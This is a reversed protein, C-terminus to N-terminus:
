VGEDEELTEGPLGEPRKATKDPRSEEASGPGAPPRGDEPVAELDGEARRRRRLVWSATLFGTLGLVQNTATAALFMAAVSSSSLSLRTAIELGAGFFVLNKTPLFPINSIIIQAALIEIWKVLPVQPLALAWQGVQIAQVALLRGMHLLFVIALTKRDLFFIRKRFRVLVVAAVAGALTTLAAYGWRASLWSGPGAVLGTALFAALLLAAEFISATSSLLFNDKWVKFIDGPPGPVNKRAWGVLYVDGSMDMVNKDLVYKTLCAPFLLGIPKKWILRFILSQFFVPTLFRLVLAAYFLPNGPIARWVQAWGIRTLRWALYAGVLLTFAFGVVRSAKRGAASREVRVFAEGLSRFTAM